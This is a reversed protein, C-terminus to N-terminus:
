LHMFFIGNDWLSPSRKRSALFFLIVFPKIQSITKPINSETIDIDKKGDTLILLTFLGTFKKIIMVKDSNGNKRWRDNNFIKNTIFLIIVAFM